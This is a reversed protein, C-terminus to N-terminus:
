RNDNRNEKFRKLKLTRLHKHKPPTFDRVKNDFTKSIVVFQWAPMEPKYEVPIGFVIDPEGLKCLYVDTQKLCTLVEYGCLIAKPETNNARMTSVADIIADLIESEIAKSRAM